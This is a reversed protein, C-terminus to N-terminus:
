AHPPSLRQLIDILMPGDFPTLGHEGVSEVRMATGYLAAVSNLDQSWGDVFDDGGAPGIAGGIRVVSVYQAAPHPQRNLWGLHTGPGERWLDAYLVQSRNITSLGVFPTMWAMPTSGVFSGLEAAPTGLHPSAITILAAIALSPKTVMMRRAVVGGASHGILVMRENGHRGRLYSVYQALLDAQLAIPAETPLDVTYLRNVATSPATFGAIGAPTLALHGADQWGAGNLSAVIGTNRWSGASGLYGQVLVLTEASAGLSGSLWVFIALLLARNQMDVIRVVFLLM